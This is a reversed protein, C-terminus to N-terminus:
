CLQFDDLSSNFDDDFRCKKVPTSHKIQQLGNALRKLPNEHSNSGSSKVNEGEVQSQSNEKDTQEFTSDSSNTAQVTYSWIKNPKALCSELSSLTVGNSYLLSRLQLDERAKEVIGEKIRFSTEKFRKKRIM